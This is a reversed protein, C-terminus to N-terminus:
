IAPWCRESLWASRPRYRSWSRWSPWPVLLWNGSPKDTLVWRWKQGGVYEIPGLLDWRHLSLWVVVLIPLLLFTVVGFLSPAILAYGLATSRRRATVAADGVGTNFRSSVTPTTVGFRPISASKRLRGRWSSASAASAAAVAAPAVCASGRM